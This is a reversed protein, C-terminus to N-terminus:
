QGGRDDPAPEALFGNLMVVWMEDHTMRGWRVERNPDPNALNSSSNDYTARMYVVTQAPIRLPKALEYTLQWNFDWKPITLLRHVSADPFVAEIWASKGRMHMHPFVSWLVFDRDILTVAGIPYDDANPPIVMDTSAIAGYGVMPRLGERRDAVKLGFRSWDTTATGNPTYHIQLEFKSGAPVHIGHGEPLVMPRGGPAFGFFGFEPRNMEPPYTLIAAAHHVVSRNGPQFEVASIWLDEKLHPDVTFFQYDIDGTAPVEFPADGLPYIFDPAGIHWGDKAFARPPAPPRAGDGHPCDRDIWELLRRKEEPRLRGDNAFYGIPESAPWPPMRGLEVAERMTPGWGLMEEYRTLPFPGIEGSQHCPACRQALIPAIDKTYTVPSDVAPTPARGILCGPAVTRAVPTPRGELLAEIAERLDQRRLTPRALGVEFQDDIRGRYRLRRERDFLFAEPTREASLANALAHQEDQYVGFPLQTERAWAAIEQLTDQSNADVALFGVTPFEHALQALRGAYQQVLPCEIGVFVIAILERDKWQSSTHPVGASDVLRFEPMLLDAEDPKADLVQGASEGARRHSVDRQVFWVLGLIALLIIVSCLRLNKHGM